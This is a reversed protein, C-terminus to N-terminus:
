ADVWEPRHWSGGRYSRAAVEFGDHEHGVDGAHYDCGGDALSRFFLGAPNLVVLGVRPQRTESDVWSSVETVVAARCASAYEGGPTGYSVYHVM